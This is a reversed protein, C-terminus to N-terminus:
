IEVEEEEEERNNGTEINDIEPDKEIEKTKIMNTLMAQRQILEERKVEIYKEQSEIARDLVELIVNTDDIHGGGITDNDWFPPHDIIRQELQALAFAQSRVRETALHSNPGLLERYRRDAAIEELPSLVCKVKFNGMYTENSHEGTTNLGFSAEKESLKIGSKDM